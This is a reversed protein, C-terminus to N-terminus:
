SLTVNKTGSITEDVLSTAKVVYTGAKGNDKVTVKGTSSIVVGKRQPSISWKVQTNDTIPSGSITLKATYQQPADKSITESGEVAITTPTGKNEDTTFAVCDLFESFAYLTHKHLHTLYNLHLGDYQTRTEFLKNKIIFASTDALVGQINTGAFSDIVVVRSVFVNSKQNFANALAVYLVDVDVTASVEPSIFLCLESPKAHTSAGGVNYQDSVYSFYGIYTKVKKIFEKASAEDTVGNITVRKIKGNNYSDTILSRINIYDEVEASNYLTTMVGEIFTSLMGPTNVAKQLEVENVKSSWVREYNIDHFQALVEPKDGSFVDGATYNDSQYTRSQFLKFAIEEVTQGYAMDGKYLFSLPNEWSKATIYLMGILNMISGYFENKLSDTTLSNYVSELELPTDNAAIPVSAQYVDSAQARVANLIESNTAQIGAM